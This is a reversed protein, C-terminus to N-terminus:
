ILRTQFSKLDEQAIPVSDRALLLSKYSPPLGICIKSIVQRKTIVQGLDNLQKALKQITNIFVSIPEEKKVKCCYYREQLVIICEEIHQQNYAALQSWM